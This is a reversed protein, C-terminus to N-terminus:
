RRYVERRNGIRVVIVTLLADEISAVIRYDGVRYKWFSAFRSGKLAEGIARPDDLTAVRDRLFRLIRAAVVSDLESLEKEARRDFEIRWAM